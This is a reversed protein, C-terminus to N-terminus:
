DDDFEDNYKYDSNEDKPWPLDKPNDLYENEVYKYYEKDHKSAKETKSFKLWVGMDRGHLIFSEFDFEEKLKERAEQKNHATVTFEKIWTYNKLTM